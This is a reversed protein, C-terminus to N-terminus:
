RRNPTERNIFGWVATIVFLVAGIAALWMLGKVVMGIISLAFWIVLLAVILKLM